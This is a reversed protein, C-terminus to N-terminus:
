LSFNLTHKNGGGSDHAVDNEPPGHEPVDFGIKTVLPLLLCAKTPMDWQPHDHQGGDGQGM